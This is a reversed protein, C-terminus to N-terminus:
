TGRRTSSGAKWAPAIQQCLVAHRGGEQGPAAADLEDRRSASAVIRGDPEPATHTIAMTNRVEILADCEECLYLHM